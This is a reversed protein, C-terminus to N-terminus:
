NKVFNHDKTEISSTIILYLNAILSVTDEIVPAKYNEAVFEILTDVIRKKALYVRKM